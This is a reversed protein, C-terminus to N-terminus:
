SIVKLFSKGTSYYFKVYFKAMMFSPVIPLFFESAFQKGSISPIAASLPM